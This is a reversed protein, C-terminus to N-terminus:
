YTPDDNVILEANSSDVGSRLNRRRPNGSSRNINIAQILQLFHLQDRHPFRIAIQLLIVRTERKSRLRYDQTPENSKASKMRSLLRLNMSFVKMKYSVREICRLSQQQGTIRRDRPTMKSKLFQISKCTTSKRLLLAHARMRRHHLFQLVRLAM